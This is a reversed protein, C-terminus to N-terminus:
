VNGKTSSSDVVAYIYGTNRITTIREVSGIKHGLKKRLNSIHLDISRDYPSLERDLVRKSLEERTVITGASRLLLELISFEVGTLSVREGAREVTRAAADLSLDGVVLPKGTGLGAPNTRRLIARIRAILERPNFPKPLYDDAGIELGVIRDVLEGRATLMLVPIASQTRIRRLIDFGSSGPLMVDLIVVKHERSLARTIGQEADFVSEVDFGEPQLYEKLLECTEKDDDIILLRDVM